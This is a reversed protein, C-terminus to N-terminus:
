RTSALRADTKPIRIRVGYQISGADPFIDKNLEFIERWRKSDGLFKAAITTYRDGKQVQYYRHGRNSKRQKGTGRKNDATRQKPQSVKARLGDIEPMVLAHGVRLRDKTKMKDKNAAFIADVIAPSAEGYVKRAIKWLTDNKQVEYSTAVKTKKVPVSRRPATDRNTKKPQTRASRTPKKPVPQSKTQNTQATNQASGVGKKPKEDVADGFIADFSKRDNNGRSAQRNDTSPMSARAQSPQQKVDNSSQQTASMTTSTKPLSKPRNRQTTARSHTSPTMQRTPTMARQRPLASSQGGRQTENGARQRGTSRQVNRNVGRGSNQTRTTPTSTRRTPTQAKQDTKKKTAAPKEEAGDAEHRSLIHYAMQSSTMDGSGRNSLIVAFCVIFALGVLLGVKTEVAMEKFGKQSDAACAERM